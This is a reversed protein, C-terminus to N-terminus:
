IIQESPTFAYPDIAAISKILSFSVAHKGDLLAAPGGDTRIASITDAYVDREDAGRVVKVIFHM